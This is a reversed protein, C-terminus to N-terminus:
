RADGLPGADTGGQRVGRGARPTLAEKGELLDLANEAHKRVRDEFIDRLGEPGKAEDEHVFVELIHTNTALEVQILGQSAEHACTRDVDASGAMGLALVIDCGHDEILKKSAVPLDKVGPVTYREVAVDADELVGLAVAAMNYRAFMTDAVGVVTGSLDDPM